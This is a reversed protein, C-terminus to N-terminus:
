IPLYISSINVLNKYLFNSTSIKLHQLHQLILLNAVFFHSKSSVNVYDYIIRRGRRKSFVELATESSTIEEDDDAILVKAKMGMAEM